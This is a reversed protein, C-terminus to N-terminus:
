RAKGSCCPSHVGAMTNTSRARKRSGWLLSWRCGDRRMGAITLALLRGAHGQKRADARTGVHGIVAVLRPIGAVDRVARHCYHIASLLQGDGAVAVHTQEIRRPNDAFESQVQDRQSGFVDTWLDIVAGEEHPRLQRYEVSM